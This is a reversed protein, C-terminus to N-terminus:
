QGPRDMVGVFLPVGSVTDVIGYVFPHDLHIELPEESIEIVGGATIETVAAAKTGEEDVQVKVMQGIGLDPMLGMDTMVDTLTQQYEVTFKPMSFNMFTDVSDDCIEKWDDAQLSVLLEDVSRGTTPRLAVFALNGDRYPLVVGDLGEKQAYSRHCLFDTMFDTTLEENAATYFVKEMTDAASFADQWKAELYVANLISLTTMEDYPDQRFEQIMGRTQLKVWMNIATVIDKHQLDGQYVNTHLNQSIRMLDGAPLSATDDMWLSNAAAVCSDEKTWNMQRMLRRGYDNWQDQSVGLVQAYTDRGAEEDVCAMVMLALYVSMPSLVVNEKRDERARVLAERMLRESFEVVPGSDQLTLAVPSGKIESAEAVLIGEQLFETM